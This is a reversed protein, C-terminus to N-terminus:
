PQRKIRVRRRTREILGTPLRLQKRLRQEKREMRGNDREHDYGALHLLGHLMLIRVEDEFSENRETASQRAIDVSIAIDGAVGNKAPAPFSLVDTPMDNKRFQRNLRRMEGNSTLLVTVEGAVGAERCARSMFRTLSKLDLGTAPRRTIILQTNQPQKDFFFLLAVQV